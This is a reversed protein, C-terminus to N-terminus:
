NHLKAPNFELKNQSAISIIASRVWANKRKNNLPMPGSHIVKVIVKGIRPDGLTVKEVRTLIFPEKEEKKWYKVLKELTSVPLFDYPNNSHHNLDPCNTSTHIISWERQALEQTPAKM